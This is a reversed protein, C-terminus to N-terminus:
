EGGGAGGEGGLELPAVAASWRRQWDALHQEAEALARRVAQRDASAVEGSWELVLGRPQAPPM